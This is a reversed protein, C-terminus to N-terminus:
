EADSEARRINTSVYSRSSDCDLLGYPFIERAKVSDYSDFDVGQESYNGHSEVYKFDFEEGGGGFVPFLAWVGATSGNEALYDGWAKLAPAVDTSFHKGDGVTCDSFDLVINPLDERKPPAKFQVAASMSHSDCPAVSDFGDGLTGGKSLWMDQVDGMGKGTATVGLWIFDFDQEPSYYFPTLTWASYDAMGQDDAWKNWKAIVENLDAAGMGDAYSCTYIEVAAASDDDDQAVATNLGGAFVFGSTVLSLLLRNM